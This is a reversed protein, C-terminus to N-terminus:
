DDDYRTTEQEYENAPKWESLHSRGTDHAHTRFSGCDLCVETRWSGWQRPSDLGRKTNLHSCAM